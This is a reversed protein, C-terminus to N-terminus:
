FIDMFFYIIKIKAITKIRNRVAQTGPGFRSALVGSLSLWTAPKQSPTQCPNIAGSV